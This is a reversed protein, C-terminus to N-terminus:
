SVQSCQRFLLFDTEDIENNLLHVRARDSPTSPPPGHPDQRLAGRLTTDTNIMKKFEAHHWRNYPFGIEYKDSEKLIRLRDLQSPKVSKVCDQFWARIWDFSIVRATTRVVLQFGPAAALITAISVIYILLVSPSSSGSPTHFITLRRTYFAVFFHDGEFVSFTACSKTRSPLTLM